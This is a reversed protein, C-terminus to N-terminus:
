NLPVVSNMVSFPSDSLGECEIHERLNQRFKGVTEFPLFVFVKESFEDRCCFTNLKQKKLNKRSNLRFLQVQTRVASESEDLVSSKEKPHIEWESRRRKQTFHGSECGLTCELGSILYLLFFSILSIM